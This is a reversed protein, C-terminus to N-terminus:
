NCGIVALRRRTEKSIRPPNKWAFSIYVVCSIFTLTLYSPQVLVRKSISKCINQLSNVICSCVKGAAPEQVDVARRDYTQYTVPVHRRVLIERPVQRRVTDRSIQRTVVNEPASFSAKAQYTVPSIYSMRPPEGQRHAYSQGNTSRLHFIFTFVVFAHCNKM